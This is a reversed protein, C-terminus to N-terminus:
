VGHTKRLLLRKHRKDLQWMIIWYVPLVLPLFIFVLFTYGHYRSAEAGILNDARNIASIYSNLALIPVLISGLIMVPSYKVRIHTKRYWRMLLLHLLFLIAGAIYPMYPALLIMLRASQKIGPGFELEIYEGPLKTFHWKSVAATSGPLAAGLNNQYEVPEGEQRVTVDLMGFSRWYKAPTLSYRFSTKNVWGSRDKWPRATYEVRITHDGPQIDTEFYLLNQLRYGYGEQERWYITVYNDKGTIGKFADLPSPASGTYTGPLPAVSISKGDLWVRFSDTYGEAVFLLPIQIGAADAKIHYEIIFRAASRDNNILISIHESTIDINRSSFVDAASTGRVIPSAMNAMCFQATFLTFVALITKM